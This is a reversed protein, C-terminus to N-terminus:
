RIKYKFANEQVLNFSHYNDVRSSSANAHLDTDLLLAPRFDEQVTTPVNGSVNVSEVCSYENTIEM